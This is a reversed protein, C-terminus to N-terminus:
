SEEAKSQRPDLFSPAIEREFVEQAAEEGRGALRRLDLYLQLPSVVNLGSVSRMDYFVAPDGALWLAINAGTEVRKAGIFDLLPEISWTGLDGALYITSRDYRVMPATRWAGSYQTLAYRVQNARCWEAVKEEAEKTKAMVYLPLQQAQLEYKASWARLLGVPDRVFLRREREEVFAQGTLAVKVKSALGLSVQAEEALEQVQWGRFPQTLLVRVIRSSKPSFPDASPRTDPRTNGRGEIQIFFGDGLIRCNGAEDLYGIGNERCLEAVRPSVAPSCLVLVSEGKEANMRKVMGLAEAPNVRSRVEIKMHLRAGNNLTVTAEVDPRWAGVSPGACEMAVEAVSFAGTEQGLRRLWDAAAIELRSIM